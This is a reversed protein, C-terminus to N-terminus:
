TPSHASREWAVREIRMKAKLRDTLIPKGADDLLCETQACHCRFRNGRVEYFARVEDSTYVRGNRSAHWPRTTPLLASTWLLGTVVGLEDRAYDSEAARAERLTNTIDTQAYLAARSRSVDLAEMMETRVAKPNKGDVVARGIMQSLTSRQEAALGTWHEYSRIQAIALRNRYAPSFVVTELSRAAAYVTSLNTLNAVTQATGLQMAQQDYPAWWFLQATDRGSAIWRELAALLEASLAQLQDPTLGYLVRELAVDNLAVANLTYVPIRDFIALVEAQLAAYRRNIEAIARRLIGAGGTRDRATGPIIPNPPRRRPALM